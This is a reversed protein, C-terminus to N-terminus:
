VPSLTAVGFPSDFRVCWILVNSYRSLDTASPVAYNQDGVNGKLPGLDIADDVDTSGEPVLYVRLDPGNSTRFDSFRVFQGTAADLVSADGSTEHDLGDFSGQWTPTETAAAPVSEDVRDDIVLTHVEFYGFAVVLAAVVVAALVLITRRARAIAMADTRRSGGVPHTLRRGSRPCAARRHGVLHM